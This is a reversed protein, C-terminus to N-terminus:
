DVRIAAVLRQWGGPYKQLKFPALPKTNASSCLMANPDTDIPVGSSRWGEHGRLVVLLCGKDLLARALATILVRSPLARLVGEMDDLSQRDFLRRVDGRSIMSRSAWPILELKLCVDSLRRKEIGERLLPGFLHHNARTTGAPADPSLGAVHWGASQHAHHQPTSDDGFGPNGALIALRASQPRGDFVFPGIEHQLRILNEAEFSPASKAAIANFRHVFDLDMRSIEVPHLQALLRPDVAASEPNSNCLCDRANTIAFESACGAASSTRECGLIWSSKRM